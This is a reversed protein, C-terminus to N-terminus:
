DNNEYIAWAVTQAIERKMIAKLSNIIYDGNVYKDGLDAYHHISQASIAVLATEIDLYKRCLESLKNIQDNEFMGIV